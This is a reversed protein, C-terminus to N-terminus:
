SQDFKGGRGEPPIKRNTESWEDVVDDINDDDWRENSLFDSTLKGEEELTLMMYLFDACGDMLKSNSHSAVRISDLM